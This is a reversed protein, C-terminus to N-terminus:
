WDYLGVLNHILHEPTKTLMKDRIIGHWRYGELIVGYRRKMLYYLNM